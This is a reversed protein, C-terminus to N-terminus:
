STIVEPEAHNVHDQFVDPNFAIDYETDSLSGVARAAVSVVEKMSEEDRSGTGSETLKEVLKKAEETELEEPAAASSGAAPANGDGQGQEVQDQRKNQAGAYM